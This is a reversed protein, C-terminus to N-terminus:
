RRLFPGYIVPYESDISAAPSGLMVDDIGDGNFDGFAWLTYRADNWIDDAEDSSVDILRVHVGQGLRADPKLGLVEAPLRASTRRDLATAFGGTPPKRLRPASPHM